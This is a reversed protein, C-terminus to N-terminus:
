SLTIGRLLYIKLLETAVSAPVVEQLTRAAAPLSPARPCMIINIVMCMTGTMEVVSATHNFTVKHVRRSSVHSIESRVLIERLPPM